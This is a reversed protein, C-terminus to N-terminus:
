SAGSTHLKQNQIFIEFYRVKMIPVELIFIYPWFFAIFHSKTLKGYLSIQSRGSNISNSLGRKSRWWFCFCGNKKKWGVYLNFSFIFKLCCIKRWDALLAFNEDEIALVNDSRAIELFLNPKDYGVMIICCDKPLSMSILLM